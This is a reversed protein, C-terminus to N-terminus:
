AKAEPNAAGGSSSAGAAPPVSQGLLGRVKDEIRREAHVNWTGDRRVYSRLTGITDEPDAYKPGEGYKGMLADELVATKVEAPAEFPRDKLVQKKWLRAEDSPPVFAGNGERWAIHLSLPKELYQPHFAQGGGLIRAQRLVTEGQGFPTSSTAVAPGWGALSALSLSPNFAMTQGTEKGELYAKISPTTIQRSEDAQQEADRRKVGREDDDGRRRSGRGRRPRDDPRRNGGGGGGGGGRPGGQRLPGFRPDGGRSPLSGGGGRGRFGGRIITPGNSAGLRPPMGSPAGAGRINNFGGRPQFNDSRIINPGNSIPVRTIGTFGGRPLNKSTIINPGQSRDPSPSPTKATANYVPRSSGIVGDVTAILENVAAVSRERGSPRQSRDDDNNNSNDDEASRRASVSFQRLSAAIGDTVRKLDPRTRGVTSNLPHRIM